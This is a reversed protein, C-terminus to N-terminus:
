LRSFTATLTTVGLDNTYPVLFLDFTGLTPHYVLYTDQDLQGQTKTPLFDMSFSKGEKALAGLSNVKTLECVTHGQTSVMEFQQGMLSRALRMDLLELASTGPPMAPQTLPRALLWGPTAVALVAAGTSRIWQRRSLTLPIESKM